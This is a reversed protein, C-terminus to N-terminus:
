RPPRRAAPHGRRRGRGRRRSGLRDARGTRRRPRSPSPHGPGPNGLHGGGRGHCRNPLRIAGILDGLQALERRAAPNRADLTYRSTLAVVLGGPRTLALSKVLFYNHLSHRGRNFRTDTPTVKAFPVNGVVADFPETPAFREFSGTHIEADPFLARAVAATTPDREVGVMRADPPAADIFNGSGCGPELVRGGDFGLRSVADWMATVVAPDTYHANLVTRRAADWAEDDVLGRLETRLSATRENAEDFVQPVAGWGSWRAL